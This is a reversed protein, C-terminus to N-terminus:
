DRWDEAPGRQLQQLWVVKLDFIRLNWDAAPWSFVVDNLGDNLFAWTM